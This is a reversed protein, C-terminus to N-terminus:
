VYIIATTPFPINVGNKLETKIYEPNHNPLKLEIDKTVNNPTDTYKLKLLPNQSLKKRLPLPISSTMVLATKDNFFPKKFPGDYTENLIGEIEIDEENVKMHDQIIIQYQWLLERTNFALNLKKQPDNEDALTQLDLLLVGVANSVHDNGPPALEMQLEESDARNKLYLIDTSNLHNDATYNKFLPDENLIQFHLTGLEALETALDFDDTNVTGCYFSFLNQQQNVIINYNQLKRATDSLPLLKFDDTIGDPFYSHIVELELFKHYTLNM